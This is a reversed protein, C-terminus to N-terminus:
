EITVNPAKAKLEQKIKEMSQDVGFSSDKSLTQIIINMVDSLIVDNENEVVDKTVANIDKFYKEGIDQDGFNPWTLQTFAPDDYAKKYHTFVGEKKMAEAGEQSMFGFEVWKWALEKNKADKPIGLSSGGWILGGGPAVMLGWRPTESKDNPGIVYMPTWAASPTFIYKDQAFAAMWAPSWQDLKDVTGSDRFQVLKTVVEQLVATNLQDGDFYPGSRQGKLFIHADALSAFMKVKGDSQQVVEKGKELFTDWDPFMAELESPNDTGFYQEALGKLYALGAVSVDLPVAVLKGNLSFAEQDYDFLLSKDANYPAQELDELINMAFIKPKRTREIQIVDPLQGGSAITTQLKKAMDASPVNVVKIKINPYKKNFEQTMGPFESVWTWLTVEGKYDENSKAAQEANGDTKNSASDSSATNTTNNDTTNETTNGGGCAALLGLLMILATATGIWRKWKKQLM